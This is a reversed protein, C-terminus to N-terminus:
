SAKSKMERERRIHWIKKRHTPEGCNVYVSQLQKALAVSAESLAVRYTYHQISGIQTDIADMQQDTLDFSKLLDYLNEIREELIEQSYDLSEISSDLQPNKSM